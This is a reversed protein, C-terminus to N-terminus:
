RPVKGKSEAEKLMKECDDAMKSMDKGVDEILNAAREINKKEIDNLDRVNTQAGANAIISAVLGILLLFSFPRHFAMLEHENPFGAGNTASIARVWYAQRDKRRDM